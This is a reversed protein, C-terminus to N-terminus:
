FGSDIVNDQRNPPPPLRKAFLCLDFARLKQFLTPLCVRMQTQHPTRSSSAKSQFGSDIVNDQRNCPPLWKAFLCLDFARLKQFLTPHCVRMQTQRPTRSSGLFEYGRPPVGMSVSYLSTGGLHTPKQCFIWLCPDM